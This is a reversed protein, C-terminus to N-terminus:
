TKENVLSRKCYECVVETKFKELIINAGCTECRKGVEGLLLASKGKREFADFVAIEKNIAYTLIGVDGENIILDADAQMTITKGQETDFSIQRFLSAKGPEGIKRVFALAKLTEFSNMLLVIGVVIGIFSVISFVFFHHLFPNLIEFIELDIIIVLIMVLSIGLITTCTYLITNGLRRISNKNM